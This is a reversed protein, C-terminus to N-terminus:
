GYASRFITRDQTGPRSQYTQGPVTFRCMTQIRPSVSGSTLLGSASVRPCYSAPARDDLHANWGLGHGVEHLAVSELDLQNRGPRGRTATFWQEQRDIALVFSRVTYPRGDDGSLMCSGGVGVTGGPGDINVWKAISAPRGGVTRNCDSAEFAIGGGSRRLRIVGQEATPHPRLELDGTLGSWKAAADIIRARQGGRPFGREFYFDANGFAPCFVVDFYPDAASGGRPACRKRSDAESEAAVRVAKPGCRASSRESVTRALELYHVVLIITGPPCRLQALPDAPARMPRGAPPALMLAAMTSVLFTATAARLM